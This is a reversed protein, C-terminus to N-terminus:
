QPCSIIEHSQSGLDEIENAGGSQHSEVKSKILINIM